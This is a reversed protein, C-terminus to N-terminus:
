GRKLFLKIEEGSIAGERLIVPESGTMDVLTSETGGPSKGADIIM